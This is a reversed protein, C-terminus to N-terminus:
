KTKIFSGYIQRHHRISLFIPGVFSIFGRGPRGGFSVTRSLREINFATIFFKRSVSISLINAFFMETTVARLIRFLVLCFSCSFFRKNWSSISFLSQVRLCIHLCTSHTRSCHEKGILQLIQCLLVCILTAYVLQFMCCFCYRHVM